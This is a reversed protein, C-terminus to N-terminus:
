APTLIETQLITDDASEARGCRHVQTLRTSLRPSIDATSHSRKFTQSVLDSFLSWLGCDPCRKALFAHPHKNPETSMNKPFIFM